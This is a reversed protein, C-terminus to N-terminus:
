FSYIIDDEKMELPLSLFVEPYRNSAENSVPIPNNRYHLFVEHLSRVRFSEGMCFWGNRQKISFHRVRAQHRMSLVLEGERNPSERFIFEGQKARQLLLTECDKRSMRGWLYQKPDQAVHLPSSKQPQNEYVHVHSRVSEPHDIEPKSSVDPLQQNPYLYYSLSSM